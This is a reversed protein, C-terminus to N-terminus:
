KSPAQQGGAGHAQQPLLRSPNLLTWIIEHSKDRAKLLYIARYTVIDLLRTQLSAVTIELFWLMSHRRWPSIRTILVTVGAHHSSVM